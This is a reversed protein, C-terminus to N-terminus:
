LGLVLNNLGEPLGLKFNSQNKSSQLRKQIPLLFPEVGTFLYLATVSVPKEQALSNFLIMDGVKIESINAAPMNRIQQGFDAPLSTDQKKLNDRILESFEQSFARAYTNKNLVVTMVQGSVLEKIKLQQSNQNIETVTGSSLQFSGVLIERVESIGNGKDNVLARFLDNPKINELSVAVADKYAVSNNSFRRIQSVDPFKLTVTESIEKKRIKVTAQKAVPDVAVIEGVIGNRYWEERSKESLESLDKASVIVIQNAAVTKEVEDIKGLALLKDGEGLDNPNIVVAKELNVAGPQIKKFNTNPAYSVVYEEGKGTLIKIQSKNLDIKIIEGNISKQLKASETKGYGYISIFGLVLIALIFVRNKKM